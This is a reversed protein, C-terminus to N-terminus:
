AARAQSTVLEAHVVLRERASFKPHCTTLTLLRRTPTAAADGPVPYTVEIATPQVVQLAEVRYTHVADATEVVVADGPLLEGVDGFPAGYTTRHGSLVVNGVEGPNATGPYHGPGRRLSATDVGEVVVHGREDGLTPFRILAVGSGIEPPAPPAAAPEAPPAAPEEAPLAPAVPAPPGADATASVPAWDRLLEARLDDQAAATRVNTGWLLYAAFLLLVLGATVLLEGTVQLAVRLTEGRGRPGPAPAGTTPPADATTTM